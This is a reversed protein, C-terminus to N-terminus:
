EDRLNIFPVDIAYVEEAQPTPLEEEEEEHEMSM